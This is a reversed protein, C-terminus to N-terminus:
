RRRYVRDLNLILQRGRFGSDAEHWYLISKEGLKWCLFVEKGQFRFPFDVLGQDLDKVILGKNLVAQLEGYFELCSKHFIRSANVNSSLVFQFGEESTVEIMKAFEKHESVIYEIAQKRKIVSRLTKALWPILQEAEEMGFFRTDDDVRM